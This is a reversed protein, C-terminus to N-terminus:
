FPLLLQHPNPHKYSPNKKGRVRESMRKRYEPDQWRKKNYASTAKSVKARHETSKNQEILRKRNQERNKPEQNMQTTKAGSIRKHRKRVEPDDMPNFDGGETINYGNPVQTQLKHIYWKEIANLAEKSVHPYEIVRFEFTDAGHKQLAHGILNQSNNTLHENIRRKLNYSQGVYSLGTPKCTLIYIGKMPNVTEIPNRKGVDIPTPCNVSGWQFPRIM